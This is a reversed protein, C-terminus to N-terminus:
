TAKLGTKRQEIRTIVTIATKYPSTLSLPLKIPIQNQAPKTKMPMLFAIPCIM